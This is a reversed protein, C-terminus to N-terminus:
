NANELAQKIVPELEKWSSGGAKRGNVLFAPTGQIDYQEVAKRRLGTLVQEHAKDTLCAAASRETVGKRVFWGILGTEKAYHLARQEVPANQIRAAADANPPPREFFLASQDAYIAHYLDVARSPTACRMLMSAALDPANLVFNRLELSVLGRAIYSKRLAPLDNAVFDRCHSCTLSFYEVVRVRAKPNGILYGGEPTAAITRNWDVRQALAPQAVLMLLLALLAKM